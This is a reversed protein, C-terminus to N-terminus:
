NLDVRAANVKFKGAATITIDAGSTFTITGAASVEATGPLTARLHKAISDYEIVAGDRYTRRHLGDRDGNAEILDSFLGTIAIGNALQGSPSLLVVQEGVTPPNWERDAGARPNLWPLWATTLSGTLVQVRPPVMQVAAITGYRILNELLRALTALDNMGTINGRARLRHLRSPKYPPPKCPSTTCCTTAFSNKRPM